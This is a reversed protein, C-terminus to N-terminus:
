WSWRSCARPAASPPTYPSRARTPAPPPVKVNGFQAGNGDYNRYIRFADAPIYTDHSGPARDARWFTALDLGERGFIGLAEAQLVNQLQQDYTVGLGFNYESMALKTGPYNQKVWAKMRPILAIKPDHTSVVPNGWWPDEFRKDWLARTM